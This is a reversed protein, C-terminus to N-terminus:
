PKRLPDKRRDAPDGEEWLFDRDEPNLDREPERDEGDDVMGEGPEDTLSKSKRGTMSGPTAFSPSARNNRGRRGISRAM